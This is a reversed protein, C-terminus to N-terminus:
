GNAMNYEVAWGDVFASVVDAWTADSPAASYAALATVVTARWSDVNPTHNFAWSVNYNGAALLDNGNALFTNTSAPAAKFPIAGLTDVMKQAATEDTVLWYLFDLSAKQDEEAVQSNVAWCNETGSCLGAKEEGEVGCYIPIMALNTMGAENLSAFEWTGNQYFVAQGETLQAKSEDGTGTSLTKADAASDTIYLDWINRFNDMYTGKITAPQETIGDDRFEYFLPMNALHGSFRWSSSGDLGAASFADFGLTAANAHIDDAVAKLSAFDKIEDLSHGAKELLDVNVIIGFSEFCHGIAKLEGAENYLNFENTTLEGAIATDALNLAYEDWDKLGSMNGINFITPAESKAIEATLTDSYTGSAATVVKVPVGTQETYLAALEQMTADAEPKFNLYYVRGAAAPAAETAPAEAAPAQTAPAETAAPASSGGCAALGLVMVLALLMAILKKM